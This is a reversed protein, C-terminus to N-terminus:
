GSAANGCPGMARNWTPSDGAFGCRAGSRKKHKANKANAEKALVVVVCGDAPKAMEEERLPYSFYPSAEIDAGNLDLPYAALPNDRANRRNNVVVEACQAPTIGSESLFRNMELAALAHPNFGLPRNYIPDLASDLGWRLHSMQRKSHAMSLGSIPLAPASRM